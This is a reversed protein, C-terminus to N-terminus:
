LIAYLMMIEYFRIFLYFAYLYFSIYIKLLYDYIMIEVTTEVFYM